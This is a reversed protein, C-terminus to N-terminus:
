TPEFGDRGVMETIWDLLRRAGKKNTTEIANPFRNRSQDSTAMEYTPNGTNPHESPTRDQLFHKGLPIPQHM